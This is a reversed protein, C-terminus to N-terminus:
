YFTGDFEITVTPGPISDVFRQTEEPTPLPSESVGETTVCRVVGDGFEIWGAMTM